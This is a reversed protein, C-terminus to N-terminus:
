VLVNLKSSNYNNSVSASATEPQIAQQSGSQESKKAQTQQIQMELQAIQAQLLQVKLQKTKTDDKSQGEATVQKQLNKIQSQLQKVESDNGSSYSISSSSSISTVNM